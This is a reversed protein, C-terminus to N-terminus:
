DLAEQELKCNNELMYKIVDDFECGLLNRLRKRDSETLKQTYKMNNKLTEIDMHIAKFDVNTKRRLHLLINFGGADIDGYHFYEKDPNQKYLLKIFERRLSNHYGGLYIVFENDPIYSNFTTLNEITLISNGSIDISHIKKLLSSSLAIDGDLNNLNIIQGDVNIVGSGKIYVHGPNKVINLDELITDKDPFEGYEDLISVITNKIKEFAKSDGLIKISFDRIYTEQEIDTINQLVNVIDKYEQINGKFHEAKKNNTIRKIQEKCFLNVIDNGEAYGYLLELLEANVDKKPKRKLYSYCDDIRNTNLKVGYLIQNKKRLGFIYNLTELDEVDSKIRQIEIIKSDDAYEPFEKELRIMFSQNVSNAGIFSKSSEYKDLLKNLTEKKYDKM